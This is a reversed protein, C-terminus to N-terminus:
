GEKRVECTGCGGGRVAGRVEGQRLANGGGVGSKGGEVEEYKDSWCVRDGRTGDNEGGRGRGEKVGVSQV